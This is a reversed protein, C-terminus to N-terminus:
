RHARVRQLVERRRPEGTRVARLDVDSLVSSNGDHERRSRLQAPGEPHHRGRVPEGRRDPHRHELAAPVGEVGSDRGAERELDDLRVQVARAALDRRDEVGDLLPLREDEATLAHGGRGGRDLAEVLEPVVQHGPM